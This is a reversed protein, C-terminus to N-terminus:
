SGRVTKYDVSESRYEELIIRVDARLPQLTKPDFLDKSLVEVSKVLCEVSLYDGYQFRIRHPAHKRTTESHEPYLLSQFWLIKEHVEERRDYEGYWLNILLSITRKGGSVYQYRPHSMGPITIEAYNTSKTDSIQEPNITFILNKNNVVDVIMGRLPAPVENSLGAM